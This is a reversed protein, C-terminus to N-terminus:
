SALDKKLNKLTKRYESREYGDMRDIIYFMLEEKNEMDSIQNLSPNKVSRLSEVEKFLEVADQVLNSM